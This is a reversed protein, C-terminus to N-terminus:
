IFPPARSLRIGESRLALRQSRERRFTFLLHINIILVVAAALLLPVHIIQCLLCNDFNAQATTLHGAHPMHNTCEVCAVEKSLQAEHVHLSTFILM